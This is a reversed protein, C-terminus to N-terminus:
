LATLDRDAVLAHGTALSADESALLAVVSANEDPRGQRGLPVSTDILRKLEDESVGELVPANFGTDIWGPCVCNVRIGDRSYDVALQRALNGCGSKSACDVALSAEGVIGATSASNVIARGGQRRMAPLAARALLFVTRVNVDFTRDWDDPEQELVSETLLVGANSHAVDIRGFRELIEAVVREIAALDAVDAQQWEAEGGAARDLEATERRGAESIGDTDVGASKTGL